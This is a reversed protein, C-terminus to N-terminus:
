NENETEKLVCVLHDIEEKTRQETVAVLFTNQPLWLGEQDLGVLLRNELLKKRLMEPNVYFRVLFENFFQAKSFLQFQKLECIQGALYHAKSACQDAVERLGKDGM